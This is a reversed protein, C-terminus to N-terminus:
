KFWIIITVQFENNTTTACFGMKTIQSIKYSKNIFILFRSIDVSSTRCLGSSSLRYRFFLCQFYIQFIFLIMALMLFSNLSLFYTIIYIVITWHNKFGFIFCSFFVTLWFCCFCFSSPFCRWKLQKFFKHLFFIYILLYKFFMKKDYEM